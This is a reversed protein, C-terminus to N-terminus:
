FFVRPLGQKASRLSAKRWNMRLCALGARIEAQVFAAIIAIGNSVSSQMTKLLRITKGNPLAANTVPFRKKLNDLHSSYQNTVHSDLPATNPHDEAAEYQM